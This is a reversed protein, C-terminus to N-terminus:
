KALRLNRFDRIFKLGPSDILTPRLRFLRWLLRASDPFVIMAQNKSVGRLIIEAAPGPEMMRGAVGVSMAQDHPANIVQTAQYINTRIFGPCVVSVKVGLDMAELRLSLSLGVVAHKSTSYPANTPFPALGAASATNVIHGSGKKAMVAYAALSGYLVGYLNVALVRRWHDLKLDRIDGAISIGANNFMYDLRGNEAVAEDVLRYVQEEDSVDVRAPRARGGKQEIGSAVKRACEEDIDAVVVIAGRQGLAQCLAQGIGSGGGTVIATRDKYNEM